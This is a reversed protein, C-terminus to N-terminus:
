FQLFYVVVLYIMVGLLFPLLPSSRKQDPIKEKITTIILIGAFFSTWLALIIQDMALITAILWGIFTSFAFIWKIIRNYKHQFRKYIILDLSQFHFIMAIAFIIVICNSVDKLETLIFGTLLYYGALFSIHFYVAAKYTTSHKGGEHLAFLYQVLQDSFFFILLGILALLYSNHELFILFGVDDSSFFLKESKALKPLITLFIYSISIGGAFSILINQYRNVIKIKGVMLHSVSLILVLIFTFVERTNINDM